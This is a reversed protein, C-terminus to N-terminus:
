SSAAALSNFNLWGQNWKFLFRGTPRQMKEVAEEQKLDNNDKSLVDAFCMKLEIATWLNTKLANTDNM